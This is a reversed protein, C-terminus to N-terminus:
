KIIDKIKVIEKVKNDKTFHYCEGVADYWFDGYGNKQKYAEAQKNFRNNQICEAIKFVIRSIYVLLLVFM